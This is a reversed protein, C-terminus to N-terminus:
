DIYRVFSFFYRSLSGGFRPNIELIYPQNKVVKYNVCCLGEFGIMALISAFLDLFPCDCLIQSSHKDKGKIPIDKNFSYRVNMSCIIKKDKFLIHTAYEQHGPIIRQCFYEPNNIIDSLEKEVTTDAVIHCSEGWADIRKKVMYPFVISGAMKPVYEAFGNEILKKNFRYKDDCLEIRDIEAIPLPNNVILPRMGNLHKLDNITLPVVLDHKKVNEPSLEAFTIHHPTYRFGTEIPEQWAVPANSFLIRLGRRSFLRSYIIEYTLFSKRYIKAWIREAMEFIRKMVM